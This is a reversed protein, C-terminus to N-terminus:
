KQEMKLWKLQSMNLTEVQAVVVIHIDLLRFNKMMQILQSGERVNMLLELVNEAGAIKIVGV